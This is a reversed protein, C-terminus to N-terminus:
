ARIACVMNLFYLPVPNCDLVTMADFPDELATEWMRFTPEHLFPYQPHINEFYANSLRVATHYDPLLCPEPPPLELDDIDVPMSSVAKRLAPKIFRAFAFVSSSGLYRPEAGAANLSLTGVMSSLDSLEHQDDDVAQQDPVSTLQGGTSPSTVSGTPTNNRAELLM